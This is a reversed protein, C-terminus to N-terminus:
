IGPYMIVREWAGRRERGGGAVAMAVVSLVSPQGEDEPCLQGPRVIWKSM